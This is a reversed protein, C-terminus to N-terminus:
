ISTAFTHQKIKGDEILYTDTAFQIDLHQNKGHWVFYVLNGHTEQKITIFEFGEFKPLFAQYFETIQAKGQYTQEPTIFLADETYDEMVLSPNLTSVAQMHSEFVAQSDKM